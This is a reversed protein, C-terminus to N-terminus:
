IPRTVRLLFVAVVAVGDRGVQEGRRTNPRGGVRARLCLLPVLRDASLIIRGQEGFEARDLRQAHAPSTTLLGCAAGVTALVAMLRRKM